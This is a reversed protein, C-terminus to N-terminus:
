LRNDAATDSEPLDDVSLTAGTREPSRGLLYDCSVGYFDATRVVFDLGCERIGKEYHSLLAQSINLEAAAQKQSIGREKRLLTLIRPFDSNM